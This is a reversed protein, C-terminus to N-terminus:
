IMLYLGIATLIHWMGHLVDTLRKNWDLYLFPINCLAGMAFFPLHVWGPALAFTILAMYPIMVETHFDSEKVWTLVVAIGIFVAAEPTGIFYWMYAGFTLFMARVDLKQWLWTGYWHYGGSTIGMVVLVPSLVPHWLLLAVIIYAINTITSIM